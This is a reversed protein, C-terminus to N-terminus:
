QVTALLGRRYYILSEEIEGLQELLKAYAAYVRVKSEIKLSAQYYNKAKGWLQNREALKGLVFLLEADKPHLKLWQEAYALQRKVDTLKVDIYLLVLKSNWNEKLVKRLLTDATDIENLSILAEIYLRIIQPQNRIDSPAKKWVEMLNKVDYPTTFIHCYATLTINILYKKPFLKQKKLQPLLEVVNNWEGLKKYIKTLLRLVLKQKPAIEVLQKLTALALEYQNADYQLQAQVLGIILKANPVIEYAQHLYQDRKQQEGDRAAATAAALYNILPVPANKVERLLKKQAVSWDGQVVSMLGQCTLKTAKIAKEKTRWQQWRVPMSYIYKFLRIVFYLILFLIFSSLLAFWLRTEVTFHNTSILVYGPNSKIQVGILIAVILVVLLFFLRKM